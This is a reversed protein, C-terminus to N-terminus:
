SNLETAEKILAKLADVKIDEINGIKVHRLKIGTGQLLGAPDKLESGRWFHLNVYTKHSAIACVFRKKRYCLNGWRIVEEFDPVTELILKRLEQVVQRLEPTLEALYKEANGEIKEKMNKERKLFPQQFQNPEM